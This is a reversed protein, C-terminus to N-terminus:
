PCDLARSTPLLNTAASRIAVRDLAPGRADLTVRSDKSPRLSLQASRVGIDRLQALREEAGKQSSFIGLSIALYRAGPEQVIFYDSIGLARLEGTKKDAGQKNPQPPIYVWWSDGESTERQRSLKFAPFRDTLRAALREADAAPLNEWRTCAQSTSVSKAM